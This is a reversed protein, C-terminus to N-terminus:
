AARVVPGDLRCDRPLVLMDAILAAVAAPDLRPGVVRSAHLMPTDIADPFLLQVRVGGPAVEAGLAQSFGVVGRKSACYAAAYPQGSRGGRASIVNVIEGAGAALMAPLVARNALFVGTLNTDVVDAWEDLTLRAAGRPLLGANVGRGVGACTVLADIRGFQGLTRTAMTDMGVPDRVDLALALADPLGEAVADVADSTRGVVVVSHGRAALAQCTARGLGGSGGTVVAVLRV